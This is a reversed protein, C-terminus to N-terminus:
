SDGRRYPLTLATPMRVRGVVGALAVLALLFPLALWLQPPLSVDPTTVFLVIGSAAVLAALALSVRGPRREQKVLVAYVAYAGAAVALVAWVERPMSEQAQLRLQLADAGGFLLCAGFVGMPHWRGFIVATLALFGRGATMEQRYIGLQVISLFVGALGALSAAALTAMWRVRRVSVGATDAAVPLEGVARISLGWRTRYLLYAVAPVLLFAVYVVPDHDFLAAGLGGLDSLVPIAIPDMTDLQVQERDGFIQDFGFTTAGIALLNIGVGAVIQDAKAEICLLAMVVGFLAGAAIGAGTALLLSDTRWLAWFAVFAGSLMMGELGVNLVGARESILEGLAALLIPTTLVLAAGLLAADFPGM